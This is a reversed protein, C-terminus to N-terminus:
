EATTELWEKAAAIAARMIAEEGSGSKMGPLYIEDESKAFEAPYGYSEGNALRAGMFESQEILRFGLRRFAAPHVLWFALRDLELADEARKLTVTYRYSSKRDPAETAMCAVVECRIGASEMADVLAATFAGRRMLQEPTFSGSAVVNARIRAIRGRATTQQMPFAIWHDAEGSLFRSVCVEDGEESYSPEMRYADPADPLKVLARASDIRALGEPWGVAALREADAFYSAGTWPSVEKSEDRSSTQGPLPNSARVRAMLADISAFVDESHGRAYANNTTRKKM